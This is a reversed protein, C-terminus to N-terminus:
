FLKSSRVDAQVCRLAVDCDSSGEHKPIFIVEKVYCDLSNEIFNNKAIFDGVRPIAAFNLRYSGLIYTLEEDSYIRVFIDIM